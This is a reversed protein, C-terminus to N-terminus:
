AHDGPVERVFPYMMNEAGPISYEIDPGTEIGHHPLIKEMTMPSVDPTPIVTEDLLVGDIGKWEKYISIKPFKSEALYTDYIDAMEEIAEVALEVDHFMPLQRAELTQYKHWAVFNLQTYRDEQNPGLQVTPKFEAKCFNKREGTGRDPEEARWRGEYRAWYYSALNGMRVENEKGWKEWRMRYYKWFATDALCSYDMPTFQAHIHLGCSTNVRPPYLVRFDKLLNEMLTHPRTIVEGMSGTLNRVSGERREEGGSVLAAIDRTPRDWAGELELGMKLWRQTTPKRAM